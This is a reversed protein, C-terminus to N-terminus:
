FLGLAATALASGALISGKPYEAIRRALFEGVVISVRLVNIAILPLAM